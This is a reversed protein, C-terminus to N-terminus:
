EFLRQALRHLEPNALALAKKKVSRSFYEKETKNFKEGRLKKLFLEKQKPSFIQSLAYEIGLEEKARLLESLAPKPPNFYNNFTNKIRESSMKYRGLTFTGNKKLAGMFKRYERKTGPDLYKSLGKAWSFSLGLVEYLALSMALMIDFFVKDGKKSLYKVAASYAFAGIENANALVVPFGELLMMDQSVALDALTKNTDEFREPEFLPYGLARLRMILGDNKTM